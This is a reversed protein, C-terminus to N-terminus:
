NEVKFTYTAILDKGILFHTDYYGIKDFQYELTLSLNDMEIRSPKVTISKFGNDILFRVDKIDIAKQLQYKFKVTENKQILHHMQKPTDHGILNTYAKGYLIPAALFEDFNPTSELLSWKKDLPFHNIIFLKPNALFYGDNYYFKFENTELNPIGSAWTPDCLYWNKNLKVANWSSDRICM